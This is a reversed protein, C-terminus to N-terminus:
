LITRNQSTLSKLENALDNAENKSLKINMENGCKSNDKTTIIIDDNNDSITVSRKEVSSFIQVLNVM